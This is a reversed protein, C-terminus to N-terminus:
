PEQQTRRAVAGTVARAFQEISMPTGGGSKELFPHFDSLTFPSPKKRPDRHANALITVVPAARDWADSRRADAMLM